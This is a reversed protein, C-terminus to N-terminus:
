CMRRRPALLREAREIEAFSDLVLYGIGADFALKLEAETKNNGHMFIGSRTSAPAAARPLARRGSAVDVSLGEEAM